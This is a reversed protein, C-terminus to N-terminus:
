YMIVNYGQKLLETKNVHCIKRNGELKFYQSLETLKDLFMEAEYADRSKIPFPLIYEEDMEIPTTKNKNCLEEMSMFGIENQLISDQYNREDNIGRYAEEEPVIYKKLEEDYMYRKKMRNIANNPAQVGTSKLYEVAAHRGKKSYIEALKPYNVKGQKYMIAVM